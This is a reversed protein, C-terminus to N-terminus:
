RSLARKLVMEHRSLLKVVSQKIAEQTSGKAGDPIKRAAAQAQQFLGVCKKLDTAEKLLEDNLQVLLAACPAMVDEGKKLDSPGLGVFIGGNHPPLKKEEQAGAFGALLTLAVVCAFSRVM